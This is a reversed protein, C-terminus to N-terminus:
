TGDSGFGFAAAAGNGPSGRVTVGTVWHRLGRSIPQNQIEVPWLIMRAAANFEHVVAAQRIDVSASPEFFGQPRVM